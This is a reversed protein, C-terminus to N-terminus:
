RQMVTGQTGPLTGHAQPPEPLTDGPCGGATAGTLAQGCGQGGRVGKDPCLRLRAWPFSCNKGHQHGARLLQGETPLAARAEESGAAGQGRGRGRGDWGRLWGVDQGM